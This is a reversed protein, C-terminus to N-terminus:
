CGSTNHCTALESALAITNAHITVIADIDPAYGGSMSIAAPLNLGRCRGLVLADRARLGGVTLKLRGLRDGEYPDAGALYFVFEPEHRRWVEDLGRALLELYAADTTGDELNVDLDSVEKRFPFNQAGHMSFTFVSRDHKFIAATGNGQHVDCDIVAIRHVAHDRQLVRAGVAVDNFVCYGEGRDAFAHHTGGALNVAIGDERAARAAAITAGVSRRSREVMGPSWPFGIRRQAESPLTGTAVAEVYDPTHVLRIDDWSAAPAEFLREPPVSGDAVVRERLRAYKAMPFRHGEPLPLVFHDSYFARM